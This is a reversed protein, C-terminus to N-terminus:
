NVTITGANTITGENDIDGGTLNIAGGAAQVEIAGNSKNVIHGNSLTLTGTGAVNVTKDNQLTGKGITFTSGTAVEVVPSGTNLVDVAVVTNADGTEVTSSGGGLTKKGAQSFKLLKFAYSGIAQDSGGNFHMISSAGFGPTGSGSFSGSVKYEQLTTFAPTTGNIALNKYQAVAVTQSTGTYDFTGGVDPSAQGLTVVGGVTITGANVADAVNASAGTSFNNSGVALTTGSPNNLTTNVTINGQASKAFAGTLTLTGYTTPYVQQTGALTYSVTGSAASLTGITSALTSTKIDLINSGVVLAGASLDFTTNVTTTGADLTKNGTATVKLGGYAVALVNQTNGNYEVTGAFATFTGSSNSTTAGALKLTGTGNVETTAGDNTYNGGVVFNGATVTASAAYGGSSYTGTVTYTGGNNNFIGPSTSKYNSFNGTVNATGTNTITGKNTINGAALVSISLLVCLFTIASRSFFNTTKMVKSRKSIKNTSINSNTVSKANRGGSIVAPHEM